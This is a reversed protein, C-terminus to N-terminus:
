AAKTASTADVGTTTFVRRLHSGMATRLGKVRRWDAMRADIPRATLYLVGTLAVLVVFLFGFISKM